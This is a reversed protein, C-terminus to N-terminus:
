LIQRIELLGVVWDGQFLIDLLTSGIMWLAVKKIGKDGCLEVVYAYMFIEKQGYYPTQIVMISGVTVRLSLQINVHQHITLFIFWQYGPGTTCGAYEAPISLLYDKMSRM